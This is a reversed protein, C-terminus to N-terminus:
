ISAIQQMPINEDEKSTSVSLSNNPSTKKDQTLFSVTSISMPATKQAQMFTQQSLLESKKLAENLHDQIIENDKLLIELKPITTTQLTRLEKSNMNVQRKNNEITDRNSDIESQDTCASYAYVASTIGTVLTGIFLAAPPAIFLTYVFAPAAFFPIVGSFLLILPITLLFTLTFLLLAPTAFNQRSNVHQELSAVLETNRQTLHQSNTTLNPNEQQLSIIKAKAKKLKEYHEKILIKRKNISDRTDKSEQEHQMNQKLLKLITKIAEIEAVQLSLKTLHNPLQKIFIPYNIEETIKILESCQTEIANHQRQINTSLKTWNEQTLTERLGQKTTDYAIRAQERSNRELQNAMRRKERTEIDTISKQIENKKILLTQIKIARQEIDKNLQAIAAKSEDQPIKSPKLNHGHQHEHANQHEHSHEHQNERDQQLAITFLRTLQLKLQFLGDEYTRLQSSNDQLKAQLNAKSEEDKSVDSKEEKIQKSDDDLQKSYAQKELANKMVTQDNKKTQTLIAVVQSHLKPIFSKNLILTKLEPFTFENDQLYIDFQKTVLEQVNCDILPM